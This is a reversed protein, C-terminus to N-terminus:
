GNNGSRKVLKLQAVSVPSKGTADVHVRIVRLAWCNDVRSRVKSCSPNQVEYVKPTASRVSGTDLYRARSVLFQLYGTGLCREIVSERCPIATVPDCFAPLKLQLGAKLEMGIYMVETDEVRLRM